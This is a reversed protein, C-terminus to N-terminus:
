IPRDAARVCGLRELYAILERADDDTTIRGGYWVQEFQRTLAAVTPHRPDDSQLLRLYERPTRSQDVRWIEQEELRCVAAQYGCRVAERLDGARAAQLARLGWERAPPRPPTASDLELGSARSQRTLMTVLWATLAALALLAVVWALGMAVARSGLASGAFRNIVGVIWEAVRRRMSEIWVSSPSRQFEPRALVDVLAGDPARRHVVRADSTEALMADLRIKIEQRTSAWDSVGTRDVAADLWTFDVVAVADDIRVSWRDAVATAIARADAPTAANSIERSIQELRATYAEPRLTGSEPQAFPLAVFIILASRFMV